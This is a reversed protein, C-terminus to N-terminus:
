RKGKAKVKPRAKRKRRRSKRKNPPVLIAEGFVITFPNSNIYEAARSLKGAHDDFKQLARNCKWCLLGRVQGPKKHNHDVALANKFYSEPVQCIYCKKDQFELVKQRMALTINYTRKLYQDKAKEKPTM